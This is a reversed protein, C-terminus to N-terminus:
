FALNFEIIGTVDFGLGARGFRANGANKRGSIHLIFDVALGHGRGTGAAHGREFGFAIKRLMM